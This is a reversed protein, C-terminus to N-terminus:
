GEESGVTSSAVAKGLYSAIVQEHSRVEEATGRTLVTGEAMVVVDDAVSALFSMNHAILLVTVGQEAIERVRTAILRSVEPFVGATPEDLLILRPKAALARAIELLRSQGGSLTGALKELDKDLGLWGLLETAEERLAKEQALWSRRWFVARFPHEGLQDMAAIMVNELVSVKPLLRPIQFTRAIGSRATKAADWQTIDEGRFILSGRMPIRFGSILEILTSKGAGNPGILGTVSGRSIAMSCDQVAWVGGYAYGVQRIDLLTESDRSGTGSGPQGDSM